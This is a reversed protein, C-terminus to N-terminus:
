KASQDVKFTGVLRLLQEAKESLQVAATAAQNTGESTQKTVASIQEVNRSVEESTASQEEAAAAISQIMSSVEQAGAVIQELSQGAQTAKEVGVKVQETGANMREVAQSTEDQIATISEAIEETAKTTRDALKRVEDAVVAFGRGHEGARAAEIAANLALLNTQDAIDNIVEIIQGIQEGRKGLESVSAASATVADSIANMGTITESVVQGGETAVKGSEQANNAAEASKRAVEVVSSSMQEIASSIQTVQSSQENMGSAIEESSSAIETAASAVERTAGSVESIVDHIKKIFQNVYGGLQGIEDKSKVDIRQTLDGDGQAIDKIRDILNNIPRGFMVRLIFIFLGTAVLVLPTTWTLGNTIFGAVQTDVPELPMVVHYTGHMFGPKWNEMTFGVPDKGDGTLSDAPDGHCMLCDQTLKIARMFHLSNTETDTKYVFEEGGANVQETLDRLLKEEFSGPAPENEKNRADFSTIRFDINESVAAEQAATWGAVVPITGFIKADTYPKGAEQTQKLDDLLATTDFAGLKNLNATHNKAEDAVATFAAAKQAMAEEASERYKAVFIVYNVAVVSVLVVLTVTILRTGLGLSKLAQFM